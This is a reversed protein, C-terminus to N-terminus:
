FGRLDDEVNRNSWYAADHHFNEEIRDLSKAVKPYRFRIKNAITKFYSARENNGEVESGYTFRVTERVSQLATEFSGILEQSNTQEILDCIFAPPWKDDRVISGLIKGLLHDTPIMRENQKALIRLNKFYIKFKEINEDTQNELYTNLKLYYLIKWSKSAKTENGDVLLGNPTNEPVYAWMIFDMIFEPETSLKKLLIQPYENDLLDFTDFWIIELNLIQGEYELIEKQYLEEFIAHGDHKDIPHALAIRGIGVEYLLFIILKSSVKKASRKLLHFATDKRGVEILKNFGYEVDKDEMDWFWPDLNLWYNRSKSSGLSEIFLWLKKTAKLPILLHILPLRLSELKIYKNIIWEENHIQAKRFAFGSAAPFRSKHSLFYQLALDVESDKNILNALVFGFTQKAEIKDVLKLLKEFDNENKYKKLIELRQNLSFDTYGIDKKNKFNTNSFFYPNQNKFAAKIETLPYNKKQKNFLLIYPKLENLTLSWDTYTFEQHHAIKSGLFSHLERKDGTQKFKYSIIELLQFRLKEPLRVFSASCISKLDHNNFSKLETLFIIAGTIHLESNRYILANNNQRFEFKTNFTTLWENQIISILIKFVENPTTRYIRKLVDIRNTENVYTQPNNTCFIAKLSNIPRNSISGGPYDKALLFLCYCSDCFYEPFWALAEFAWLLDTHYSKASFFSAEEIFLAKIESSNAELKSKIIDIFIAPAAEAFLLLMNSFTKWSRIDNSDLIEGILQNVLDQTKIGLHTPNLIAILILSNLLGKRLEGSYAYKIGRIEAWPRELPSLELVPNSESYILVSIAKLTELDFVIKKSICFDLALHQFKFKYFTGAKALPANPCNIFLNLKSIYTNYDSKALLEIASRDGNKSEDWSGILIAPLLLELSQFENWDFGTNIFGSLYLFLEVERNSKIALQKAKNYTFGSKQLTNYFVIQEIRPLMLCILQTTDTFHDTPFIIRHGNRQALNFFSIDYFLCVFILKGQLLASDRIIASDYTIISISEYDENAEERIAAIYFALSELTSSSKIAIISNSKLTSFLEEKQSMRSGTHLESVISLTSKTFTRDWYTSLTELSTSGFVLKQEVALWLATIPCLSLWVEIMTANIVKVDKWYKEKKKELIWNDANSFLRPTFFVFTSNKHNLEKSKKKAELYDRDAKDKIKIDTGIEFFIEGDPLFSSAKNLIVHGDFGSFAVADGYPIDILSIQAHFSELILKRLLLPSNNECEKKRIEPWQRIDNVTILNM